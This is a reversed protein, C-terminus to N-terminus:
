IEEKRQNILGLVDEKEEPSYGDFSVQASLEDFRANHQEFFYNLIAIQTSPRSTKLFASHASENMEERAEQSLEKDSAMILAAEAIGNEGQITNALFDVNKEWDIHEIAALRIAINKGSDKAYEEIIAKQEETGVQSFLKIANIQEDETGSIMANASQQLKGIDVEPILSISHNYSPISASYSQSTKSKEVNRAPPSGKEPSVGIQVQSTPAIEPIQPSALPQRIHLYKWVIFSTLVLVASLVIISRYKKFVDM